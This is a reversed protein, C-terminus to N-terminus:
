DLRTSSITGDVDPSKLTSGERDLHSAPVFVSFVVIIGPCLPPASQAEYGGPKDPYGRRNSTTQAEGALEAIPVSDVKDAGVSPPFENRQQGVNDNREEVIAGAVDVGAGKSPGQLGLM